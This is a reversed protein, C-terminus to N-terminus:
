VKLYRTFDASCDGLALGFGTFPQRGCHVESAYKTHVLVRDYPCQVDKAIFPQQVKRSTSAHANDTRRLPTGQKSSDVFEQVECSLLAIATILNDCEDLSL